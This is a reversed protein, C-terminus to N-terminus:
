IIYLCAPMLRTRVRSVTFLYISWAGPGTTATQRGKNWDVERLGARGRYSATAIYSADTSVWKCQTISTNSIREGSKQLKRGRDM